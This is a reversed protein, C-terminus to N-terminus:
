SESAAAASPKLEVDDATGAPAGALDVVIAPVSVAAGDIEPQQAKAADAKQQKEAKEKEEQKMMALATQYVKLSCRGAISQGRLWFSTYAYAAAPVAFFVVLLVLFLRTRTEDSQQQMVDNILKTCYGGVIASVIGGVAFNCGFAFGLSSGRDAFAIPIAVNAVAFALIRAFSLVTMAIYHLLLSNSAVGGLVGTTEQTIPVLAAVVAFFAIGASIGLLLMQTAKDPGWRNVAWGCVFSFPAVVAIIVALWVRAQEAQAPSAGKWQLFSSVSAIYLYCSAVAFATNCLILWYAKSRFFFDLSKSVSSRIQKLSSGAGPAPAWRGTFLTRMFYTAPLGCALGYIVFSQWLELSPLLIWWRLALNFTSAFDWMGTLVSQAFSREGVTDFLPFLLGSFLSIAVVATSSAAGTFGAVWM